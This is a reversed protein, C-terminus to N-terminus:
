SRHFRAWRSIYIIWANFDPFCEVIWIYMSKLSYAYEHFGWIYGLLPFLCAVSWQVNEALVRVNLSVTFNKMWPTFHPNHKFLRPCYLFLCKILYGDCETTVTKPVQARMNKQQWRIQTGGIMRRSWVCTSSLLFSQNIQTESETHKM